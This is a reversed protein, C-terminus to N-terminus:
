SKNKNFKGYIRVTGIKEAINECLTRIYTGKSCQVEFEIKNENVDINLIEIHYIEIDREKRQVEIGDRAYEYLKRGNVKLASYMPPLQKQKGLFSLIIKRYEEENEKNLIFNDEELIKGERDGTDTKVGLRLVARYTKDHEMFYNSLKTAQGILIPLLGQAEPDLTGTHGIKKIGYIKRLRAVVGFSSIGREKNILIMGDM